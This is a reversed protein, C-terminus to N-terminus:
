RPSLPIRFIKYGQIEPFGDAADPSVLALVAAPVKDRMVRDIAGAQSGSLKIEAAGAATIAQRVNDTITAKRQDIAITKGGLDSVANIEPRAMVLVVLPGPNNALVSATTEPNRPRGAKARGSRDINNARPAPGPVLTVETLQEAVAVAATLQRLTAKNADAVAHGPPPSVAVKAQLPEGANPAAPRAARAPAAPKRNEGRTVAPCGSATKPARPAAISSVDRSSVAAAGSGVHGCHDHPQALMLIMVLILPIYPVIM